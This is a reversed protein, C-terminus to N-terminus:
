SFNDKFSIHACRPHPNDQHVLSMQECKEALRKPRLILCERYIILLAEGGEHRDLFAFGVKLATCECDVSVLLTQYVSPRACNSMTM